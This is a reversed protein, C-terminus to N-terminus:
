NNVRNQKLFKEFINKKLEDFIYFNDESSTTSIEMQTVAGGCVGGEMKWGGVERYNINLSWAVENEGGCGM